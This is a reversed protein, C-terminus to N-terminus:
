DSDRSEIIYGNDLELPVLEYPEEPIDEEIEVITQWTREIAKEAIYQIRDQLDKNQIKLEEIIKM